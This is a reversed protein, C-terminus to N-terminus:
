RNRFIDIFPTILTKIISPLSIFLIAILLLSNHNNIFLTTYFFLFGFLSFVIMDDCYSKFLQYIMLCISITIISIALWIDSKQLICYHFIQFLWSVVFGCSSIKRNIKKKNYVYISIVKILPLIISICIPIYGLFYIVYLYNINDSM